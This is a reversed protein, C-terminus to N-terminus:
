TLFIPSIELIICLLYILFFLNVQATNENTKLNDNGVDKEANLGTAITVVDISTPVKTTKDNTISVKAVEDISVAAETMKDNSISVNSMKDLVSADDGNPVKNEKDSDPWYDDNVVSFGLSKVVVDLSRCRIKATQPMEINLVSYLFRLYMIDVKSPIIDGDINENRINEVLHDPVYKENERQLFPLVHRQKSNSGKTKIQVLGCQLMKYADGLNRKRDCESIFHFADIVDSFYVMGDVGYVFTHNILGDNHYSNIENILRIENRKMRYQMFKFEDCKIETTKKAFFHKFFEFACYKKNERYIFPIIVNKEVAEYGFHGIEADHQVMM